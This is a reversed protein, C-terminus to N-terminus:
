DDIPIQNKKESGRSALGLFKISYLWTVLWIAFGYSAKLNFRPNAGNQVSIKGV